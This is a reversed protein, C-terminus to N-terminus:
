RVWRRRFHISCYLSGTLRYPELERDRIFVSVRSLERTQVNIYFPNSFTLDVIKKARLEVTRLASLLTNGIYSDQVIDSCVYIRSTSNSRCRIEVLACEWDGRLDYNRPLEVTFESATNNPHVSQSDRSDLFLYFDDM